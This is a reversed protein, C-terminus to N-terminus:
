VAVRLGDYAVFVNGPLGAEIERHKGFVHSLHTLYSRKPKLKEIIELAQELNFHSIHKEKRLANIILVELGQLKKIENESIFNTDTIYSLNGVRFGYVPLKNHYCRIPIFETEGIYFPEDSLNHLVMEPLGKYRHEAFAYDFIRKLTTQVRKEAYVDTPKKQLWNFSRIDDLGLIHDAHEYTLLIASLKKIQERLMQQRFDPGADIVFNKGNIKLLLSSRLRKDMLDSSQCVACDCGIVPVGQSTGTGLFIAEIQPNEMKIM